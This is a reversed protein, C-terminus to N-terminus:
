VGGFITRLAAFIVVFEIPAASALRRFLHRQGIRLRCPNRPLVGIRKESIVGIIEDVVLGPDDDVSLARAGAPDSLDGNCPGHQVPDPPAEVKSWLPECAVSNITCDPQELPQDIALYGRVDRHPVLRRTRIAGEAASVEDEISLAVDIDTRTSLQQMGGSCDDVATRKAIAGGFGVAIDTSEFQPTAGVRGRSLNGAIKM